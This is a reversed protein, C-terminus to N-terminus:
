SPVNSAKSPVYELDLHVGDDRNTYYLNIEVTRQEEYSLGERYAELTSIFEDLKMDPCGISGERLVQMKKVKKEGENIAMMVMLLEALKMTDIM